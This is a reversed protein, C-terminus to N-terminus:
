RIRWILGLAAICLASVVIEPARFPRNRLKPMQGDYGRQVMSVTTNQSHEFAKMILSGSLVGFSRLGRGMSSYGLRNKQANYIVTADELLVFIYRYAFIMIEIFARPVKFWSLGAMFESFPTSFGLVAVVSVAGAIRAAILLGDILGDKHGAIHIGRYIDLSFLIENGTFFFKIAVLVSAIFLPESFRMAFQRLTVKMSIALAVCCFFVLVPFFFGKYSIVMALVIGAVLLKIRADARAIVHDKKQHESPLEM